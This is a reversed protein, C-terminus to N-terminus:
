HPCRPKRISQFIGIIGSDSKQEREEHPFDVAACERIPKSPCKGRWFTPIQLNILPPTWLRYLLCNLLSPGKNQIRKTFVMCYFHERVLLPWLLNLCWINEFIFFLSLLVKWIVISWHPSYFILCLWKINNCEVAINPNIEHTWWTGMSLTQSSSAVARPNM